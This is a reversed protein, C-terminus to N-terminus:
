NVSALPAINPNNLMGKIYRVDVEVILNRVGVLFMKYTRLACYLGYLELKPQLFRQECDNLLLLGFCTFYQKKPMHLNAQCLYFGVATQLTDVALIVPSDSNYNIPQLAPLNLLAEKLDAQAVVQVPGFEFPVDKRTLHVLTNTRKTFSAIFIRCVGITGLFTHVESLDRCPGWKIIKDVHSPDPLRGCPMCRHGVVTIEETCLVTKVGSYTRSCYKTQQVMRNLGQFHEWIFRCISPNDPIREETGNPLIYRDAPSCIPMDDIYPITINPIEPQLIFTVDDHFIPVSNMWGMPLTVLCLAGFPSQFMTLDRLEPVLRCENYSVFLDLMGSCVQGAFHEGIQDTFPTIGVHKMTVKNLPELSHVICLSKGDKKVVCFWKSCYWLNSPEYIGTNIKRKIICCVENYIGPPIPINQQAWPKHLITPIEIPLFFDEHFHGQELNNWAFAENQLCMFQHMLKKEEPLLFDGVHVQNFQEKQEQMYHGTLQFDQPRTPLKPINELPNGRINHIIHFCSPLKTKVPQVKLAVPKYKKGAFITLPPTVNSFSIHLTCRAKSDCKSLTPMSQSHTSDALFLSNFCTSDLDCLSVYAAAIEGQLTNDLLIACAELLTTHNTLDYDITLALEGQNDVLEDISLFRCSKSRAAQV